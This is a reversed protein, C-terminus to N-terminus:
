FYPYFDETFSTQVENFVFMCVTCILGAIILLVFVIIIVHYIPIPLYAINSLSADRLPLHNRQFSM